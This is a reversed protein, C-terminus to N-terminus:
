EDYKPDKDSPIDYKELENIMGKVIEIIRLRCDEMSLGGPPIEGYFVKLANLYSDLDSLKRNYEYDKTYFRDTRNRINILISDISRLTDIHKKHEFGDEKITDYKADIEALKNKFEKLDKILKEKM